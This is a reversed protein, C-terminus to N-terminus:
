RRDKSRREDLMWARGMLVVGAVMAAWGRGLVELVGFGFLGVGALDVAAVVRRRVVVRRDSEDGRAASTM